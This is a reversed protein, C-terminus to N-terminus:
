RFRDWVPQGDSRVIVVNGDNQVILHSGATSTGTAFVPVGRSDYVVFNGDRQMAAERASGGGTNSAWPASQNTDDYLVLNGDSQYALRFRRNQSVLTQGPLLSAGSDLRDRPTVQLTVTATASAGRSDQVRITVIVNGAQAPATWTTTPSTTSSFSGSSASWQYSLPDGDPDSATARLSSSRTTEVMCPSCAATVTPPRNPPPVTGYIARVGDIDDSQVTDLNSVSKNMIASVSQGHDDPHDLGAVHGFEHVAVRRLDLLWAGGGSAVRLNGRYSNWSYKRNFVVNGEAYTQNARAWTIAVAIVDSGFPEGFVDDGWIVNNNGDGDNIGASSDRIGRFQVSNLHPNWIGLAADASANWSTSGDMLTGSSGLQLHMTITSQSAWRPGSRWFAGAPVSAAMLSWAVLLLGRRKM